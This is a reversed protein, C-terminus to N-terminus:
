GSQPIWFCAPILSMATNVLHAEFVLEKVSLQECSGRLAQQALPALCKGPLGKVGSAAVGREQVQAISHCTHFLITPDAHVLGDKLTLLREAVDDRHDRSFGSPWLESFGERTIGTQGGYGVEAGCDGHGWCPEGEYGLQLYLLSYVCGM